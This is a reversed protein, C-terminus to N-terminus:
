VPNEITKLHPFLSEMYNNLQQAQLKFMSDLNERTSSGMHPSLVVNDLQRLKLPVEPENSYVDLGAGAIVKNTLADILANQDVISGRAVNILYGCPGLLELVTKDVLHNSEANASCCIILFDSNSALTKIDPCYHYSCVKRSRATYSINMNLADAFKAITLGIQGLGVLGLQKGSLHNGLFKPTNEVWHNERTYRDNALIRRALTLMLTLALEATDHVGANPQSLLSIHHEKLYHKNINDTGIGLHSILKLNPFQSLYPEDIRDWVTTALASVQLKDYDSNSDWGSIIHWEPLLLPIIPKIFQNTLYVTPTM